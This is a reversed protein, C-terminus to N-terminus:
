NNMVSKFDLWSFLFFCLASIKCHITMCLRAVSSPKGQQLHSRVPLRYRECPDFQLVLVEALSPSREPLVTATVKEAVLQVHSSCPKIMFLLVLISFYNNKFFASLHSLQM